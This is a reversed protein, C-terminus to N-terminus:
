IYPRRAERGWEPGQPGQAAQRSRQLGYRVACERLAVDGGPRSARPAQFAQRSTPPRIQSCTRSAGGSRRPALRPPSPPRALRPLGYRVARERLAVAEGPRSVRPSPPRALRPLGYRVARERLAVAEGPRSAHPAQPAREPGGM